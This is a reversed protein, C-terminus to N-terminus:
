PNSQKGPPLVLEMGEENTVTYSQPSPGFDSMSVKGANAMRQFAQAFEQMRPSNVVEEIRPSSVVEETMRQQITAQRLCLLLACGQVLQDYWPALKDALSVCCRWIVTQKLEDRVVSFLEHCARNLEACDENFTSM